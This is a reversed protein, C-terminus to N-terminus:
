SGHKQIASFSHIRGHSFDIENGSDIGAHALAATWADGATIYEVTVAAALRDAEEATLTETSSDVITGAEADIDYEYETTDIIFEVEWVYAGKDSDLATPLMLAVYDNAGAEALAIAEAEAATLKTAAVPVAPATEAFAAVSAAIMCLLLFISVTKKM